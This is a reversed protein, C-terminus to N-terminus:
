KIKEIAKRIELIDAQHKKCEQVGEPYKDKIFDNYDECNKFINFEQNKIDWVIGKVNVMSNAVASGIIVGFAGVSAGQAWINALDAELYYYNNGHIKARVFSNPHDNSQSRDTKNRNSLIADIQFYLNGRYSVAFSNKVKKDSQLYYFFCDDPIGYYREKEVGVVEKPVLEETNTPKKNMFDEKTAYIGAPYLDYALMVKEDELRKRYAAEKKTAEEIALKKQEAEYKLDAERTREVVTKNTFIKSDREDEIYKIEGISMTSEVGSKVDFFVFKGNELRINNFAVKDNIATTIIGKKALESQSYCIISNILLIALLLKHKM